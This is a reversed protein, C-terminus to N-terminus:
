IESSTGTDAVAAWVSLCAWAKNVYTHFASVQTRRQDRPGYCGSGEESQLYLREFCNLAQVDLRGMNTSVKFAVM